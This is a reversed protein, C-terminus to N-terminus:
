IEGIREQQRYMLSITTSNSSPSAKKREAIICKRKDRAAKDLKCGPSSPHIEQNTRDTENFPLTSDM